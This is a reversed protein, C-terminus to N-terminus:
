ARDRSKREFSGAIKVLRLAVDKGDYFRKLALAAIVKEMSKTSCKVVAEQKADDFAKIAFAAEGAGATGLTELVAQSLLSKASREDLKAGFDIKVHLYRKKERLFAVVSVAFKNFLEFGGFLFPPEMGNSNKSDM